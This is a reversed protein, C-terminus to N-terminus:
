GSKVQCSSDIPHVIAKEARRFTYEALIHSAFSHPACLASPPARAPVQIQQLFQTQRYRAGKSGLYPLLRLTFRAVTLKTTNPIDLTRSSQARRLHLRRRRRSTRQFSQCAYRGRLRISCM